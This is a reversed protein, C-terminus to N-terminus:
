VSFRKSSFRDIEDNDGRLEAVRSRDLRRIGRGRLRGGARFAVPAGIERAQEKIFFFKPYFASHKVM